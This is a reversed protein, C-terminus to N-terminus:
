NIVELIGFFVYRGPLTLCKNWCTVLSYSSILSPPETFDAVRFEAEVCSILSGVALSMNEPDPFLALSTLISDLTQTLQFEFIAAM